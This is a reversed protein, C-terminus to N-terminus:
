LYRHNKSEKRLREKSIILNGKLQELICGGLTHKTKKKLNFSNILNIVKKSRPPYYSKSFIKIGHSIVKFKIESTELSLKNLNIIVENRNKMLCDSLVHKLYKNLTDKTSSLNNISRIIQDHSIGNVELIKTIRRIKTRLYKQNKNSPDKIIKKFVKKAIIILNKKKFALLPRFLKIDKFLSIVKSMSSLGQVGSGRSLRILFTEVQDDSHHGTLIFKCKKKKCFDILLKYRIIRASNQINKSIKEKNTLIKLSIGRQKLIKKVTESEIKSNKRIGHDVLVFFIKNKNEYKYLQSLVVLALSDPGGSVAITFSNKGIIKKLNAKFLSFTETIKKNNILISKLIQVNSNKKSM